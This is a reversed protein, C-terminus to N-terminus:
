DQIEVAAFFIGISLLIGLATGTAFWIHSHDDIEDRIIENLQTIEEEKQILFENHTKKLSDYQAQLIDISLQKDALQIQFEKRLKLEIGESCYKNKAIFKAGAISDLLIGSFPASENKSISAVRGEQEELEQSAASTTVCLFCLTLFVTFIKKIM